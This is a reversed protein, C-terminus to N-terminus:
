RRSFFFKLDPFALEKSIHESLKLFYIILGKKLELGL